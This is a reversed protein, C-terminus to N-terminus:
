IGAEPTGGGGNQGGGALVSFVFDSTNTITKINDIHIVQM